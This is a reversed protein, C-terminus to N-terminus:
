PKLSPPPSLCITPALADMAREVGVPSVGTMVITPPPGCQPKLVVEGYCVTCMVLTLEATFAKFIWFAAAVEVMRLTESAPFRVNNPVIENAFRTSGEM